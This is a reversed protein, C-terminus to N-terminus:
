LQKMAIKSRHICLSTGGSDNADVLSYHNKNKLIFKRDMFPRNGVEPISSYLGSSTRAM